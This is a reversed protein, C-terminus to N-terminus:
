VVYVKISSVQCKLKENREKWIDVRFHSARVQGLLTLELNFFESKEKM